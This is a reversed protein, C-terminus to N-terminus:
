KLYIRLTFRYDGQSLRCRGGSVAQLKIATFFKSLLVLRLPVLLALFLPFGIAAPTFRVGLLFGMWYFQIMTFLHM